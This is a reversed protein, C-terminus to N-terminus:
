GGGGLVIVGRSMSELGGGGARHRAQDRVGGGGWCLSM